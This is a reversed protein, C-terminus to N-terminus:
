DMQRTRFQVIKMRGPPGRVRFIWEGMANETKFKANEVLVKCQEREKKTMDHAIIVNKFKDPLSKMKYLSEMVLNKAIHSGLHVLIPRPGGESAERKGLRLVKRIDEEAVGANLGFLLQECFRKDELLRDAALLADSEPVRYLIVNNRRAEKDQQELAADRSDQLVKQMTQVESAVQGLKADVHKGAVKVWTRESDEDKDSFFKDDVFKLVDSKTSVMTSKVETMEEAASTFQRDIEIKLNNMEDALKMNESKIAELGSGFKEYKAKLDLVSENLGKMEEEMKGQRMELKTLTPLVRGVGGNCAGCFWHINECNLLTYGEDSIKECKCHWWGECIECQIAKEKNTVKQDCSKCKDDAKEKSTSGLRAKSM